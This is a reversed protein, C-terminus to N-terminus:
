KTGDFLQTVAKSAADDLEDVSKGSAVAAGAMRGEHTEHLRLSIKLRTGVKQLEGSIIVDAGLAWRTAGRPFSAGPPLM